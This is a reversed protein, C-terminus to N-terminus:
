VAWRCRRPSQMLTVCPSPLILSVSNMVFSYLLLPSYFDYMFSCQLVTFILGQFFLFFFVLHCYFEDALLFCLLVCYSQLIRGSLCFVLPCYFLWQSFCSVVTFIMRQSLIRSSQLFLCLFPIRLGHRDFSFCLVFVYLFALWYCFSVFYFYSVLLALLFDLVLLLSIFTLQCGNFIM